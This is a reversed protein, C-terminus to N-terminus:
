DIVEILPVNERHPLLKGISQLLVGQQQAIDKIKAVESPEVAILLGGSTQPDCLLKRQAETM